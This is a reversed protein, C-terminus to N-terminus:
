FNDTGTKRKLNPKFDVNEIKEKESIEEEAEEEGEGFQTEFDRLVEEAKEKAIGYRKQLAGLLQERKGSIMTLDDDTLKGFKEKIKGRIENWQGQFQDKNM